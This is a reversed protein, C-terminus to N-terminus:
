LTVYVYGTWASCGLSNCARVRYTAVGAAYVLETASTGSSSYFIYTGDDDNTAEVDYYTAGAVANWYITVNRHGSSGSISYTPQAPTAPIRTVSTSGVTSFPGCGGANCAQARYGYTATGKGSAGWSTSSNAQATTWGGGNVQEQLTYSTAGSVATWSVTYSGTTNSGPTSVTPVATPALTVITTAPTFGGQTSTGSANRAYIGYWYTGSASPTVVTSTNSGSYVLVWSGNNYSQYLDYATATSAANWSVTFSGFASTPAAAGTPAPPPLLVTTTGTGSWGSCGAVNCAQVRYGYSGNSKGSAVWSTNGSAQVQTWAGGNASEQLTYSTAGTVATWSIAYGGNASNSPATLTPASAPVRTVVLNGSSTVASCGIASCAKVQFSYTGSALNSLAVSIGSGDYVTNSGPSQTLVYRTARVASSWNISANGDYSTAPVALTAPAPPPDGLTTDVTVTTSTAWGRDGYANKGRVQYKYSGSTTGPRSVKLSTTDSVITTWAGDGVQEQVDYRTASASANWSVDYAGVLPSQPVTVTSLVPTVGLTSSTTYGTCQAGACSKVRYLYGGGAKNAIAFSTTSLVSSLVNWAVGGDASEELTYSTAGPSAAWSVTYSGNNPNSDFGISAPAALQLTENRAIMKKGLYIYSIAKAIATDFAYLLQGSQNYFYYTSDGNPKSKRVRRGSADYDYSGFGPISILQNKNDFVLTNGNKNVVNGRADYGLTIAQAGGSVGALRNTADYNYVSTAGGSALSRINNLPDYTYSETGNWLPSTASILRNLQDYTMSKNRQGNVLDTISTINGNADYAYDQSLSLTSGGYSFNKLLQRANKEVAYSVGNGFTFSAVDGDAFYTVGTAFSGAQTPRGLADPAYDVVTADPYTIVKTNGYADHAYNIVNIGNGTVGLQESMLQGLKNRVGVWTAIGTNATQVNGVSDYSYSTAPTGAPPVLALIRNMADYSRVTKADDAVQAQGCDAGSIAQGTASWLMNNAADYATIDSGSEPEWTRCLRHYGDYYLSKTVDATIGGGTGWQRITLPNGYLDRTIAQNIGEPALVGIIAEHSPQDFVQYSTTIVYGKPDTTQGRAGSLYATTSTLNGLESTQTSSIVRGLVDYQTSVGATFADINAVSGLPYYQFIKQGKWDYDTRTSSHSTAVGDIYIDALIPRLYADFYTVSRSGGRSITRRWHNGSINRESGSVFEYVFSKPLWAQEDGTPYAIGAIRGLADYTYSTTSGAQDTISSIQGFDDVVLSQSTNDPYGILQPIGRKYNGLTTTKDNGDTFSTLQGQANFAYSMLKQGFRYREKLTDKASDYVYNSVVEGTALSTTSVPVGLVWLSTDNLIGYQEEMTVQGAISNFRKAKSVQAYDNFTEALWTYTDGDQQLDKRQLPAIQSLAETNSRQTQFNNGFWTPWPGASSDAYSVIEALAIASGVNGVYTDARILRGESIDFRNSFTYRKTKGDPSVVDTWVTSPCSDNPCDDSWSENSPSFNYSWSQASPLGAGNLVKSTITFSYWARPVLSYGTEDSVGNGGWCSKPTYSRGHRVPAVTFTGVLGSPHTISGSWSTSGVVGPGNCDGLIAPMLDPQYKLNAMAFVWHSQDPQTVSTLTPQGTGPFTGYSYTWTRPASSAPQVVVSAVTGNGNYQLSVERGDSAVVSVLRAGSYNYQLWNGFRDEVKTVLMAAYERYLDDTEEPAMPVSRSIIPADSYELHDFTYKTGDPALAFFAERTADNAAQPLCGIMWHKKTLAPFVLGPMQPVNVYNGGARGLIDQSDSGPMALQYGHWWEEPAWNQRSTIGGPKSVVPPISIRSCIALPLSGDVMWGQVNQQTAAVTIIRPLDLEWDAFSWNTYGDTDQKGTIRFSRTLQLLPGNGPLSIDTQSFSLNGNYLGINEGFPNEGLPQIEENVKLLKKYELEPSISQQAYLGTSFVLFAAAVWGHRLNRGWLRAM